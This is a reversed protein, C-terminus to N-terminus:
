PTATTRRLWGLETVRTQRMREALRRTEPDAGNTQEADALRAGQEVHERLTDRVARDFAAARLSRLVVLDAPIVMGPLEHGEHQNVAPLGASGRLRRLDDLEARRGAAIRGALDRIREDTTQGPVLDLAKLVQENMPIMLQIWAADTGGLTATAPTSVVLAPAPSETAPGPACGAAPVLALLLGALLASLRAPGTGPRRPPVVTM